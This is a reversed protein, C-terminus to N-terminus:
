FMINYLFWLRTTDRKVFYYLRHVCVMHTHTNLSSWHQITPNSYCGTPTHTNLLVLDRESGLRPEGTGEYTSSWHDVNSKPTSFTKVFNTWIRGSAEQTLFSVEVSVLFRAERALGLLDMIIILALLCANPQILRNNMNSPDNIQKCFWFKMKFTIM